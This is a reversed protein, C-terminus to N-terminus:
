KHTLQPKVSLYRQTTTELSAVSTQPSLRVWRTLNSQVYTKGHIIDMWIAFYSIEIVQDTIHRLGHTFMLRQHPNQGTYANASTLEAEHKKTRSWQTKKAVLPCEVFVM